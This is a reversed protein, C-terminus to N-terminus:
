SAARGCVAGQGVIGSGLLVGVLILGLGVLKSATIPEGLLAAGYMLAFAPILYTVLSARSSGFRHVLWLWLLQAFASGILSLVLVSVLSNWNPLSKPAQAVGAPLLVAAAGLLSVCAVASAEAGHMIQQSWLAGVGYLLAALAVALTGATEWWGRDLSAGALVSVGALGIVAGGLRTGGSRESPQYRLALLAVFIPMSANAVAATGSDVHREGWAILTFPIAVGVVGLGASRIGARHLEGAARPVGRAAHYALLAVGAIGARLMMMTTPQFDRNAVRILPFTAGWIASLLLVLLM